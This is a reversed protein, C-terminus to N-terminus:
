SDLIRPRKERGQSGLEGYGDGALLLTIDGIERRSMALVINDRMEMERFLLSRNMSLVKQVLYENWRRAFVMKTYTDILFNMNSASMHIGDVDAEYAITGVDCSLMPYSEYEKQKVQIRLAHYAPQDDPQIIVDSPHFVFYVPAGGARITLKVDPTDSWLVRWQLWEKLAAEVFKHMYRIHYRPGALSLIQIVAARFDKSVSKLQHAMRNPTGLRVSCDWYTEAKKLACEQKLFMGTDATLLAQFHLPINQM